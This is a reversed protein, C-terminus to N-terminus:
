RRQSPSSALGAGPSGVFRMLAPFFEEPREFHPMAGSDFKQFSWNSCKSVTRVQILDQFDGRTGHPVWVPVPLAAYIREIDKSFLRGSVFAFPAYRAGPQHAAQYCYEFLGEDIHKSGWTRQLLYRISRRSVLLDFITQSWLPFQLARLLGPVERTAGAPADVTSADRSFGTPAMLTLTRFREPKETAARALFEAGLSLALADVPARGADIAIVDLMDHVADVFLRVSYDRSRRDSFGFGPLDVAYVRRTSQIRDFVPRVEYASAVANVSHILLLPPGDGAVFYSLRGARGTTERRNTHWVLPLVPASLSPIASRELLDTTNNM